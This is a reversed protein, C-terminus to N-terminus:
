RLERAKLRAIYTALARLRGVPVPVHHHQDEEGQLSERHAPPAYLAHQRDRTRVFDELWRATSLEDATAPGTLDAM